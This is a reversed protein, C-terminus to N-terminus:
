RNFDRNRLLPLKELQVDVCRALHLAKDFKEDTMAEFVLARLKNIKSLVEIVNKTNADTSDIELAQLFNRLASELNDEKLDISGQNMLEKFHEAMLKIKLQVAAGSPHDPYIEVAEKLIEVSYSLDRNDINNNTDRYLQEVQEFKRELKERFLQAHSHDPQISIVEDILKLTKNFNRKSYCQKANEWIEEVKCPTQTVDESGIDSRNGDVPQRELDKILETMNQYRDDPNKELCRDIIRTIRIDAEPLVPPSLSLHHDRILTYSGGFPPRCKPHFLEYFIIGMSYVDTRLDLDDPHARIFHEPSMYPPTGIDLAKEKCCTRDSQTLSQVARSAGFDTVKLTNGSFLLNEPKLDLHAAGADHIAAVGRCAQKLFDLGITKRVELDDEHKLLWRRFTGNDAYEMSLFLLETGDVTIAHLDYVRIVHKHDFIGSHLKTEHKLLMSIDNNSPGSVVKLAVDTSRLQDEARFVSGFRGDALLNKIRFRDMLTDGPEVHVSGPQSDIIRSLFQGEKDASMHSGRGGHNLGQPHKEKDSPLSPDPINRM